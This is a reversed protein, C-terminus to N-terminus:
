ANPQVHIFYRIHAVAEARRGRCWCSDIVGFIDGVCRPSAIDLLLGNREIGRVEAVNGLCVDVGQEAQHM